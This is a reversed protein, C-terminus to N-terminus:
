NIRPAVILRHEQTLTSSRSISVLYTGLFASKNLPWFRPELLHGAM